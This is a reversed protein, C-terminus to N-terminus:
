FDGGDVGTGCFFCGEGFLYFGWLNQVPSIYNPIEQQQNLQNLNVIKM